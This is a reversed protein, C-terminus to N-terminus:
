SLQFLPVYSNLIRILSTHNHTLQIALVLLPTKSELMAKPVISVRVNLKSFFSATCMNQEIDYYPSLLRILTSGFLIGFKLYRWLQKIQWM